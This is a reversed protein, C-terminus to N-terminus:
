GVSGRPLFLLFYFALWGIFLLGTAIGAVVFAGRAGHKLAQAAADADIPAAVHEMLGAASTHPIDPDTSM